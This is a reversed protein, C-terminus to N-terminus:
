TDHIVSEVRSLYLEGKRGWGRQGKAVQPRFREYMHFAKKDLEDERGNWAKRLAGAMVERVKGLNEEGFRRKLSAERSQRPRGKVVVADDRMRMPFGMVRVVPLDTDDVVTKRKTTEKDPDAEAVTGISRGKAIATLTAISAGISLCALWSLEPHLQQAVCAGWLELVPARNILISKELKGASETSIQTQTKKTQGPAMKTKTGTESMNQETKQVKRPRRTAKVSDGGDNGPDAKRKRSRKPPM